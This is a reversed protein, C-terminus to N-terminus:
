EIFATALTDLDLVGMSKPEDDCALGFVHTAFPGFDVTEDVPVHYHGHLLLRPKVAHFAETFRRRDAEAYAIDEQLFEHPNGTISVEITPVGDPANHAVMIEAHGGAATQEVDADTLAEGAWWSKGAGYGMKHAHNRWTRDLSAAGGLWVISRGGLLTRHGRPALLIHDRFRLWGDDRVKLRAIRDYDEHNGPAVFMSMGRAALSEDVKNWMKGAVHGPWVGLDGVQIITKLGLSEFVDLAHAIHDANGHTDGLLAVKM